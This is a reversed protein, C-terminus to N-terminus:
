DRRELAHAEREFPNDRYWDRGALRLVASALLYAPGMLPGWREYQRVHVLEHSRALDLAAASRGLIVHGLTVALTGPGTPLRSVLWTSAGGHFEVVRDIVAEPLISGAEKVIEGTLGDFAMNSMIAGLAEDSAHEADFHEDILAQCADVIAAMRRAGIRRLARSAHVYSEYRGNVLFQLYGGNNVDMVLQGLAALERQWAHPLKMYQGPGGSLTALHRDTLEYWNM